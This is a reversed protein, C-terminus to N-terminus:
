RCPWASGCAQDLAATLQALLQEAHAHYDDRKPTKTQPRSPYRYQVPDRFADILVHPVNRGAFDDGEPM